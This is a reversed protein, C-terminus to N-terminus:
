RYKKVIYEFSDHYSENVKGFIKNKNLSGAQGNKAKILINGPKNPDKLNTIAGQSEKGRTNKYRIIDGIKLNTNNTDRDDVKATTNQSLDQKQTSTVDGTTVSSGKDATINTTQNGAKQALTMKLQHEREKNAKNTERRRKNRDERKQKDEPTENAKPPEAGPTSQGGGFMMQQQMQKNKLEDAKTAAERKRTEAKKRRNANTGPIIGRLFGGVKGVGKAAAGVGKGALEAANLAGKGATAAASTTNKAYNSKIPSTSSTSDENDSSRYRSKRGTIELIKKFESKKYIEVITKNKRKLNLTKETKEFLEKDTM